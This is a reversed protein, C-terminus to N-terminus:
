SFWIWNGSGYDNVFKHCVSSIYASFTVGPIGNYFVLPVNYLFVYTSGGWDLGYLGISSTLVGMVNVSPYFYNNFLDLHIYSNGNSEYYNLMTSSEYILGIGALLLAAGIAQALIPIFLAILGAIATGYGAYTTIDEWDNFFSKAASGLFEVNFNDLEGYTVSWGGLYWPAHYVYYNVNVWIWPDIINGTPTIVKVKWVEHTTGNFKVKYLVSRDYFTGQATQTSRNLYKVPKGLDVAKEMTQILFQANENSLYHRQELSALAQLYRKAAQDHNLFSRFSAISASNRHNSQLWKLYLSAIFGELINRSQLNSRLKSTHNNIVGSYAPKVLNLNNANGTTINNNTKENQLHMGIGSFALLVMVTAAMVVGLYKVKQNM